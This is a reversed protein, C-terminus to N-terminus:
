WWVYYLQALILCVILALINFSHSTKFDVDSIDTAQDNGGTQGVLLSFLVCTILCLVFVLGVRDMFPLEPWFAKLVVSFIASGVAAALAGTASAKRWFMGLLFIVVVGPTFFGTFEQIYQFAQDFKGLLPKALVIGIILSLFVVTKGVLLYHTESKDTKYHKYLDM